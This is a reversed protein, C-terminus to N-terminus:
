PAPPRPFSSRDPGRAPRRPERPERRHDRGEGGVVPPEHYRSRRVRHPPTRPVGSQGDRDRHGHGAPQPISRPRHPREAGARRGAPEGTGSAHKGPLPFRPRVAIRLHLRVPRPQTHQLDVRRHDPHQRPRRRGARDRPGPLAHACGRDGLHPAAGPDPQRRGALRGGAAAMEHPPAAPTRAGALPVAHAAARGPGDPSLRSLLSPSLRGGRPLGALRGGRFDGPPPAGPKRRRRSGPIQGKAAGAGARGARCQSGPHLRRGHEDRRGAGPRAASVVPRDAGRRHEASRRLHGGDHPRHAGHSQPCVGARAGRRCRLRAPRGRRKGLPVPHPDARAHRGTRASHRDRDPAADGRHRVLQLHHVDRHLPRLRELHEDGSYLRGAPIRVPPRPRLAARGHFDPRPGPALSAEGQELSVGENLGVDIRDFLRGRGFVKQAAYIDMIGLNGGFAQAMGGAKLIGRVTFQKPGDMTEFTIKSGTHLGNRDAFERTVILSDPQALFVLPDDIVDQDGSDFDYDRLSRDGTMDVALILIRGQGPLGTDVSAEIVPAAARVEPVAQVRELVDEGFGSDGATVQLQTKGAIRDVTQNFARLVSQDATRMGVLLAVGLVIGATTLVSRLLHKRVYPWTILRLLIVPPRRRRHPRGAPHRHPSLKRCGRCRADRHPHHRLAARASRSDPELIEAGTKSDLNGTPEDALLVPPYFALARAIAVRQREGGSLEDPLHDLRAGLQVLELLDCARKEIDKRPLGKLHLPLAVNEVCTLSPLLNFFQFIFGIKDRRLRTLEDDPLAGISKGDIRIDGSSPRDLGGILNLLTSKGSGSPGVIAVMEGRDIELHIADLAVVQRKGNFHKSVGSLSIM